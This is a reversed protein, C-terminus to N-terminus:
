RPPLTAVRARVCEIFTALPCMDTCGPLAIINAADWLADVGQNYYMRVAYDHSVNDMTTNHLEFVVSSGYPPNHSRLVHLM